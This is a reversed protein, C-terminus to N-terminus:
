QYGPSIYNIGAVGSPVYDGGPPLGTTVGGTLTSLTPWFAQGGNYAGHCGGPYSNAPDPWVANDALTGDPEKVYFNSLTIPYSVCSSTGYTFWTAYRNSNGTSPNAFVNINVNKFTGSQPLRGYTVYAYDPDVQLGQCDTTGTLHDVNLNANGANYPQFVDAHASPVAPDCGKIGEIRVNQLVVDTAGPYDDVDIGDGTDLTDTLYNPDPNRIYVGEIYVEGSASGRSINIGHCASSSDSCPVTMDIEGGIIQVNHGGTIMLGGVLPGGTPLHLRYDSNPSLSPNQNAGTNTLYLDVCSHTSDGCAPPRWTLAGTSSSSVSVIVDHEISAAQSQADTVTLRVHKTGAQQFTFSTTVGTGLLSGDADDTWRYSCPSVSCTSSTGDFSVPSGTVPFPPSYTFAPVPPSTSQSVVVDHEVSASSSGADTVSLRVHKTGAQQFTFSMTVGTGMLSGNSDDTWRYSCPSASCKSSSGDFSVSSGTVPNSPSYTFAPVPPATSQSVIVDHEVSATRSQADTISLRVYKTAAQQFTFSMRVGTGLLSGDADDTWSYSCPSAPCTSSSGDFSVPSGTTPNSPSYTFAPVPPPTSVIVNHEVSATRSLADTLRLRVYKTGAQQFTFSMRVGTGLLAGNADNTWSYSCPSATCGSSSGDFSVPSGTVPNSPSYTFRPVPRAPSQTIIVDHEVSATQSLADTVTLRVYSTGALPFTYSMTVGTGLPSGDADDTWSYSCPSVSCISSSGDFSVLDGDMPNAPSFTFAAVPPVPVQSEAPILGVRAMLLVVLSWRFSHM